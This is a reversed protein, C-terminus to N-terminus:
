LGHLLGPIRRADTKELGPRAANGDDAVPPLAQIREQFDAPFHQDGGTGLVHEAIQAITGFVPPLCEPPPRAPANQGLMRWFPARKLEFTIQLFNMVVKRRMRCPAVSAMPLDRMPQIGPHCRFAVPFCCAAFSASVSPRSGRLAM